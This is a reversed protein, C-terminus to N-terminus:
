TQERKDIKAAPAAIIRDIRTTLPIPVGDVRQRRFLAGDERKVADVVQRDGFDGVAELHVRGLDLLMECRREEHDHARDVSRAVM